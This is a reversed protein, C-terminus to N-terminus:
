RGVSFPAAMGMALHPMGNPGPLFCVIAYNGAPLTSHTFWAHSHGSLAGFGGWLGNSLGDVPPPGKEGQKAWTVLDAVTKGPALRVISAEHAEGDTNNFEWTGAAAFGAPVRYRDTPLAAVVGLAAPVSASPGSRSITVERAFGKGNGAPIDMVVLRGQALRIWIDMTKGPPLQGNGGVGGFEDHAVGGHLGVDGAQEALEIEAVANLGDDECVLGSQYRRSAISQSTVATRLPM